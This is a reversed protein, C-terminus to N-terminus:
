IKNDGDVWSSDLFIAHVNRRSVIADVFSTHRALNEIVDANTLRTNVYLIPM